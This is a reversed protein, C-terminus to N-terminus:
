KNSDFIECTVPDIQISKEAAEWEDLKTIIERLMELTRPERKKWNLLTQYTISTERSLDSITKGSKKCRTAIIDYTKIM